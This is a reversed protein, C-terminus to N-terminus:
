KKKLKRRIFAELDLINYKIRILIVKHSKCRRNKIKDRKKQGHFDSLDRHFPNRYKHHQIGDYEFALKLKKKCYGDLELRYGTEYNILWSPRVNPFKEGLINEFIRRCREERIFKNSRKARKENKM